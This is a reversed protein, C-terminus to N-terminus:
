ARYVGIQYAGTRRSSHHRVKLTYTGPQLNTIIRANLQRGSDDDQLLFRTEDNPGFLSMVLDLSGTTEMRYRGAATVVFTYKDLEGFTGITAARAPADIPLEHEPKAAGPYLTAIYAKDTASLVQNWGVEFDGITFENPIPYLMISARDFASFQTIDASYRTFLNIDVQERTWNNPPGGYYDYVAAKDWPINTAPNQHEHLCGLAHGFEHVVVRSYEDNPTSATLWGFNMTPQNQPISLADTGIYSWSGTQRFSIRIEANPDNGFAFQINAYKSWEQVFPEIRRQVAPDGDLFRVRLTRGPKWLKGTLAALAVPSDIGPLRVGQPLSPANDPNEAIAARSAQLMRQTPLTLDVCTKIPTVETTLQSM